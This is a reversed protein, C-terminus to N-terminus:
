ADPKPQEPPAAEPQTEVLVLKDVIDVVGRVGRVLELTRQRLEPREIKGRLRVVGKDVDVDIRFGSLEKDNVLRTKVRLKISVDDIVEGATRGASDDVYGKCGAIFFLALSLLCLTRFM